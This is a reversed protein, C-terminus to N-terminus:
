IYYNLQRLNNEIERRTDFLVCLDPVEKRVYHYLRFKEDTVLHVIKGDNQLQKVYLLAKTPTMFVSVKM